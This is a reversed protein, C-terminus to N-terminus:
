EIVYGAKFQSEAPINSFIAGFKATGNTITTEATGAETWNTGNDISAYWTITKATGDTGSFTAEYAKEDANDLADNFDYSEATGFDSETTTLVASFNSLTVFDNTYTQSNTRRDATSLVISEISKGAVSTERNYKATNNGAKLSATIAKATGGANLEIEYTVTATENDVM